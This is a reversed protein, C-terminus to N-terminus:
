YFIMFVNLLCGGRRGSALAETGLDFCHRRSAFFSVLLPASEVGLVAFVCIYLFCVGPHSSPYEQSVAMIIGEAIAVPM